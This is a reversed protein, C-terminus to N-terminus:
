LMQLDPFPHGVPGGSTTSWNATNNWNSAGAAVWFRQGFSVQCALLLLILTLYSRLSKNM